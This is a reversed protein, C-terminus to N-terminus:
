YISLFRRFGLFHHGLAWEGWWFSFKALVVFKAFFDRFYCYGGVGGRLAGGVVFALGLCGAVSRLYGGLIGLVPGGGAHDGGLHGRWFGSFGETATACGSAM